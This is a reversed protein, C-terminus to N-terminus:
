PTPLHALDFSDSFCILGLPYSPHSYKDCLAVFEVDVAVWTNSDQSYMVEFPSAVQAKWIQVILHKGNGVNYKHLVLPSYTIPQTNTGFKVYYNGGSTQLVSDAIAKGFNVDTLELFSFKLRLDQATIEQGRICAPYGAKYTKFTPAVTIGCDGLTAGVKTSEIYVDAGCIDCNEVTTATWSM